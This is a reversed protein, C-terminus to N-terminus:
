PQRVPANYRAEDEPRLRKFDSHRIAIPKPGFAKVADANIPMVVTYMAPGGFTGNAGWTSKGAGTVVPNLSADYSAQPYTDFVGSDLYRYPNSVGVFQREMSRNMRTYDM